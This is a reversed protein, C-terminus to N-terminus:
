LETAATFTKTHFWLDSRAATKLTLEDNQINNKGIYMIFGDSLEFQLPKSVATRKGGKKNKQKRRVRGLGAGRPNRFTRRMKGGKCTGRFAKSIHFNM